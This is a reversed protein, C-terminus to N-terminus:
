TEEEKKSCYESFPKPNSKGEEALASMHHPNCTRCAAAMEATLHLCAHTPQDLLGLIAKYAEWEKPTMLGFSAVKDAADRVGREYETMQVGLTEMQCYTLM